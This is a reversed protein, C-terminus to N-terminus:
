GYRIMLLQLVGKVRDRTLAQYYDPYYYSNLVINRLDVRVCVVFQYVCACVCASVCLWLCLCVCACVCVRVYVCM